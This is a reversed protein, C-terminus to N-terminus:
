GFRIQIGGTDPAINAHARVPPEVGQGQPGVCFSYKPKLSIEEITYATGSISIYLISYLELPTSIPPWPTSGGTLAHSFRVGTATPM